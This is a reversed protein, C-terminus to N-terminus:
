YVQPRLKGVIASVGKDLSITRFSGATFKESERQLLRLGKDIEDVKDSEFYRDRAWQVADSPLFIERSFM